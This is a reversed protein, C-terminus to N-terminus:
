KGEVIRVEGAQVKVKLKAKGSGIKGEFKGKIPNSQTSFTDPVKFSGLNCTGIIDLSSGDLVELKASGAKVRLRHNGTDLLASANFEGADVKFDLGGIRSAQVSGVSNSGKLFAVDSVKAEGASVDLKLGMTNPMELTTDGFNGTISYAGSNEQISQSSVGNMNKVVPKSLGSVGKITVSGASVKVTLWQKPESKVVSFDDSNDNSIGSDLADDSFDVEINMKSTDPVTPTKPVAPPTPPAPTPLAPTSLVSSVPVEQITNKFYAEQNGKQLNDADDLETIAEILLEAEDNSIKGQELLNEIRLLENSNNQHM